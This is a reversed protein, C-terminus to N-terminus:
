RKRVHYMEETAPEIIAPAVSSVVGAPTERSPWRSDDSRCAGTAKPRASEWPWRLLDCILERLRIPRITGEVFVVHSASKWITTGRPM